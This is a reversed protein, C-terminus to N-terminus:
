NNIFVQDSNGLRRLICSKPSSFKNYFQPLKHSFIQGTVECKKKCERNSDEVICQNSSNVAERTIDTRGGM